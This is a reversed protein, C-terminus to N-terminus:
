TDISSVNVMNNHSIRTPLDMKHLVELSTRHVELPSLSRIQHLAVGLVQHIDLMTKINTTFQNLNHKYVRTAYQELSSSGDAHYRHAIHSNVSHHLARLLHYASPSSEVKQYM